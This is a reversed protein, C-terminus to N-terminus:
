CILIKEHKINTYGINILESGYNFNLSNYSNLLKADVYYKNIEGISQICNSNIKPIAKNYNDSIIKATRSIMQQLSTIQTDSYISTISPTIFTINLYSTDHIVDILENQLTGGDAYQASEFKIPPFIIPIASTCMLLKTRKENSDLLDYRFVDLNGTYLNTTGIFTKIVPKPLKEIITNLTNELPQTNLLSINTNPTLSYIMKNKVTSYFIEASKIGENINPFHSLYGANIGGASIGTYFDYKINYDNQLRKIIGIEVAGFSGGGSFALQNLAIIPNLLLLSYLYIFKFM